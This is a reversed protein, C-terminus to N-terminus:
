SKKRLKSKFRESYMRVMPEKVVYLMGFYIACSGLVQIVLGLFIRANSNGLVFHDVVLCYAGM